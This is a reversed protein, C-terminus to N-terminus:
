CSSLFDKGPWTPCSLYSLLPECAPTKNPCLQWEMPSQMACLCDGVCLLHEAFTLTKKMRNKGNQM